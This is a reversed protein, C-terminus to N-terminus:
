AMEKQGLLQDLLLLAHEGLVSSVEAQTPTWEDDLGLYPRAGRLEAARTLAGQLLSEQEEDLGGKTLGLALRALVGAADQGRALAELNALPRTAVEVREVLAVVGRHRSELDAAFSKDRKQLWGHLSTRGTLRLRLSLYLLPGSGEEVLRRLEATVADHVRRDLELEEEAGTVDIELLDYRVLSLPLQRASFRHGADMEVLWVGHPGGEGPDMAQPSGPYLVSSAGPQERFAFRHVHGLLWFGVPLACLTALRIPAHRSGPQDLDAHLLGLIPVGDAARRPYETLPDDRHSGAPFSWGDVHLVPGGGEELTLRDWRGGRGLLAFEHPEFRDAIWPLIDHDHNGAVAVTRIGHSVLTRVGAEVPGAAEYFRNAEDVLDGAIAVLDVREAIAREVLATWARACSLPGSDVHLPLRSPRRGIHIDATCLIKM